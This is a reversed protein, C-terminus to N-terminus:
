LNRIRDRDVPLSVPALFEAPPLLSNIPMLSWCRQVGTAGTPHRQGRVSWERGRPRAARSGAEKAGRRCQAILDDFSCGDDVLHNPVGSDCSDIVLTPSLLTAPCHDNADCM